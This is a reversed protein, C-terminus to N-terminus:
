ISDKEKSTLNVHITHIMNALEQMTSFNSSAETYNVLYPINIHHSAKEENMYEELIEMARTLLIQSWEAYAHAMEYLQEVLEYTNTCLDDIFRLDEEMQLQKDNIDSRIERDVTINSFYSLFRDKKEVGYDYLEGCSEVTDILRHSQNHLAFLSLSMSQLIPLTLRFMEDKAVIDKTDWKYSTIDDGLHQVYEYYARAQIVEPQLTMDLMAEQDYLSAYALPIFLFFM